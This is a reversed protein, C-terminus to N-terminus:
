IAIHYGKDATFQNCFSHGPIAIQRKRGASQQLISADKPAWQV